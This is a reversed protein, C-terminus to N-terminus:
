QNVWLKRRKDQVTGCALSPPHRSDLKRGTGRHHDDAAAHHPEAGGVVQGTRAHRVHDQQLLVLESGARRALGRSAHARLEGVGHVDLEAPAAQPRELRECVVEPLLDVQVLHAVQEEEVIGPM